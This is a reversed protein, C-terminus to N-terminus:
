FLALQATSTVVTAAHLAPTPPLDAISLPRQALQQRASGPWARCPCRQVACCLTLRRKRARIRTSLQTLLSPELHQTAELHTASCAVPDVSAVARPSARATLTHLRLRGDGGAPHSRRTSSRCGDDLLRCKLGLALHESAASLTNTIRIAGCRCARLQCLALCSSAEARRRRGLRRRLQSGLM